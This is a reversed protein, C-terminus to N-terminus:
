FLQMGFLMKIIVLDDAGGKLQSALKGEVLRM